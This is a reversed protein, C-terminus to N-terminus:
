DGRLTCAAGRPWAAPLWCPGAACVEETGPGQQPGILKLRLSEDGGPFGHLPPPRRCGCQRGPPRPLGSLSLQVLAGCQPCRQWPPKPPPAAPSEVAARCDEKQQTGNAIRSVVGRGVDYHQRDKAPENDEALLPSNSRGELPSDHLAGPAAARRGVGLIALYNARNCSPYKNYPVKRRHATPKETRIQLPFRAHRVAMPGATARRPAAARGTSGGRPPGDGAGRGRLRHPGPFATAGLRPIQMIQISERPTERRRPLIGGNESRPLHKM